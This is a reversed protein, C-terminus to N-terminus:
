AWASPRSCTAPHPRPRDRLRPKASRYVMKMQLPIIAMVCAIAAAARAGRQPDRLEPDDQRARRHDARSPPSSPGDLRRDASRRRESDRRGAARLGTWRRRRHRAGRAVAGPFVSERADRRWRRRVRMGGDRLRVAPGRTPRDGCGSCWQAPQRLLVEQYLGALDLTARPSATPSASSRRASGTM